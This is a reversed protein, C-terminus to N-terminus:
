KIQDESQHEPPYLEQQLVRACFRSMSLGLKKATDKM